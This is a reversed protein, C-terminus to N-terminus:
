TAAGKGELANLEPEITGFYRVGESFGAVKKGLPPMPKSVLAFWFIQRQAKRLITDYTITVAMHATHTRNAPAALNFSVADLFWRRMVEKPITLSESEAKALSTIFTDGEPTAKGIPREHQREWSVGERSAFCSVPHSGTHEAVLIPESLEAESLQLRFHISLNLAPGNGHNELTLEADYPYPHDTGNMLDLYYGVEPRTTGMTLVPANSLERSRQMEKASEAASRASLAAFVAAAATAAASVAQVITELDITPSMRGGHPPCLKDDVARMARYPM